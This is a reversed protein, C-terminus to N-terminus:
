FNTTYGGKVYLSVSAKLFDTTRFHIMDTDTKGAIAFEIIIKKADLIESQEAIAISVNSTGVDTSFGTADVNPCAIQIDDKTFIVNEANDLFNIKADVKVPLANSFVLNLHLKDLAINMENTDILSDLNVDLTDAYAFSTTPDFQFPLKVDIFMDVYPPYFLFHYPDQEADTHNIEVHFNYIFNKPVIHFLQHTGGNDRDFRAITSQEGGVPPKQMHFTYSDSGNFNAKVENGVDDIAKIDDIVFNLPVGINSRTEFVVQPNHFLFRNAQLFENTFFNAPLETYISDSTLKDTRNFFGWVRDCNIGDIYLTNIIDAAITTTIKKGQPVIFRYDIHVRMTTQNGQFRLTFDELVIEQESHQDTISHTIVTTSLDPVNPFSVQMEIQCENPSIGGFGALDVNLHLRADKIYMSDIRQVQINNQLENFDYDYDLGNELHGNIQAATTPDIGIGSGFIVNILYDVIPDSPLAERFRFSTTKGHALNRGVKDIMPLQLTDLLHLYLSNNTQDIILISDGILDETQNLIDMISLQVNGVPLGLATSFQATKDLKNLDLETCSSVLFLLGAACM